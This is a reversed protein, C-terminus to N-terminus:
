GGLRGGDQRRLAVTASRPRGDPLFDPWNSWRRPAAPDSLSGATEGPHAINVFLTRGDPTFALGGVAANVPATLM